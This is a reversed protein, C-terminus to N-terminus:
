YGIFEESRIDDKNVGSDILVKYLAQTMTPPGALYYVPKNLDGLYKKLLAEDIYGTEGSWDALLSDLQTMTPILKYNKNKGELGRLEELFPADAPTRNSYFLYIKHPLKKKTAEIIISRFPTIGIGGALFVIPRSFDAPLTLRGLPADLILEQGPKLGRLVRKFASDRLRTAIM